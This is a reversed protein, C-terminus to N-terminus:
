QLIKRMHKSYVPHELYYDIIPELLRTQVKVGDTKYKSKIYVLAEKKNHAEVITIPLGSNVEYALYSHTPKKIAPIDFAHQDREEVIYGRKSYVKYWFKALQLARRYLYVPDYRNKDTIDSICLFWNNPSWFKVRERHYVGNKFFAFGWLFYPRSTPRSQDYCIIEIFYGVVMGSEFHKYAYPLRIHEGHSKILQPIVAEM